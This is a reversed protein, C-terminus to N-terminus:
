LILSVSKITGSPCELTYVKRLKVKMKTNKRLISSQAIINEYFQLM